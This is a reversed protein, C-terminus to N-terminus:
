RSRGEYCIRRDFKERRADQLCREIDSTTVADTAGGVVAGTIKAGTKVTGVALSTAADAATLALCGSLAPGTLLLAAATLLSRIM